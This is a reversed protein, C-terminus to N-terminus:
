SEINFGLFEKKRFFSYIDIGDTTRLNAIEELNLLRVAPIKPKKASKHRRKGLPYLAAKIREKARRSFQPVFVELWYHTMLGKQGERYTEEEFTLIKEYRLPPFTQITLLGTEAIAEENWERPWIERRKKLIKHRAPAVFFEYLLNLKNALEEKTPATILRRLSRRREGTFPEARLLSLLRYSARGKFDYGGQFNTYVFEGQKQRNPSLRAVFLKGSKTNIEARVVGGISIRKSYAM